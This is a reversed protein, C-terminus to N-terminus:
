KDLLLRIEGKAKALDIEAIKYNLLAEHYNNQATVRETEANLLDTLSALGNQYNNQTSLFVEEALSQNDSQSRITNYSILLQQRANQLNMTLNNNTRKKEVEIRRQENEIQRVRSKRANGDFIPISLTLNVASMDYNLSKKTYLNLKGNQTNYTYNADLSLTPYATAKEAKRQLGLLEEQKELIKYTDLETTTVPTTDLIAGPLADLAAAPDAVLEIRESVPMGMYYKLLNEQQVFANELSLKQTELNSKNVRLRNLDIKKALGNEVQGAVIKEVRSVQALNADIVKIKERSILVQFFNAAVQQIINEESVKNALEYYEVSTRAAKFGTFLQQNYLQQRLQVKSLANWAQGAAIAIFEGPTGGFAEAPLVFQPVIPNNTLSSNVSIQPYVGAKNEAVKQYANDIDLKAMRIVESNRLTYALADQLTVVTQAKSSDLFLVAPLLFFLRKLFRM